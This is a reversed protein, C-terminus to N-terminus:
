RKSRTLDRSKPWAQLTKRSQWDSGAARPTGAAEMRSPRKAPPPTALAPLRRPPASTRAAKATTERELQRLSSDEEPDLGLYLQSFGRLLAIKDVYCKPLHEVAYKRTGTFLGHSPM